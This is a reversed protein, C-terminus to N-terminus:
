RILLPFFLEPLFFKDLKQTCMIIWCETLGCSMNLFFFFIANEPKNLAM